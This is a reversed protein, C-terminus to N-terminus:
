TRALRAMAIAALIISLAWLLPHSLTPISVAFAVNDVVLVTGSFALTCSTINAAHVSLTTLSSAGITTSTGLLTSGAFCALTITGANSSGVNAQVFEVPTSFTLTEPGIPTGGNPLTGAAATNFALFNPSSHGTVSFGGCENLV